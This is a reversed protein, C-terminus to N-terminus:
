HSQRVVVIEGELSMLLARRSKKKKKFFKLKKKPLATVM